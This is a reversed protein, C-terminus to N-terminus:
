EEGSAPTSSAPHKEGATVKLRPSPPVVLDIPPLPFGDPHVPKSADVAAEKKKEPILLSLLLVIV